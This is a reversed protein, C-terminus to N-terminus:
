AIYNRVIGQFILNWGDSLVFLLLKLPMAVTQPSLMHMNMALLLNSVVLDLILFPVFILFGIQFAETLETLVFAPMRVTILELPRSQLQEGPPMGAWLEDRLGRFLQTNAESSNAVLFSEVRPLVASQVIELTEAPELARGTLAEREARQANWANWCEIAPRSMILASLVLALGTIVSTPPIQPTGLAQRLIGGVIVLKAFSSVMALLFPAMAMAALLAVWLLLNASGTPTSATSSAVEAQVLALTTLASV